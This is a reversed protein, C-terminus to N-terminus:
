AETFSATELPSQRHPLKSFKLPHCSAPPSFAEDFILPLYLGKYQVFHMQNIATYFLAIYVM